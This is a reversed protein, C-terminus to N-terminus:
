RIQGALPDVRCSITRIYAQPADYPRRALSTRSLGRTPRLVRTYIACRVPGEAVPMIHLDKPTQACGLIQTWELAPATIAFAVEDLSRYTKGNWAFGETLGVVRHMQGNWRPGLM